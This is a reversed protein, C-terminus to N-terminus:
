AAGGVPARQDRRDRAAVVTRVILAGVAICAVGLLLSALLDTPHHAGRYLRSWASWVALVGVTIWVGIRIWPRRARGWAILALSGYLAVTAAFHGSPFSSTPAVQELKPISPRDREVFFQTIGFVAAELPLALVVLGFDTFWRRVLFVLGLVAAAIIITATAGVFTGGSALDDLLPRREVYFWEEVSQEWGGLSRPTLWHVLVLGAATLVGTFLVLAAVWMQAAFLLPHSPHRAAIREAPGDPEPVLVPNRPSPGREDARSGGAGRARPPGSLVEIEGIEDTDATRAPDPASGPEPPPTPRWPTSTSPTAM